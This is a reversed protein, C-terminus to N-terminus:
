KSSLDKIVEDLFEESSLNAIREDEYESQVREIYSGIKPSKKKMINLGEPGTLTQLGNTDDTLIIDESPIFDYNRMEDVLNAFHDKNDENEHIIAPVIIWAYPKMFESLDNPKIEGKELRERDIYDLRAARGFTQLFKAKGLTRLPLIGTFGSVDIGEALIDYHLVILRKSRNRGDNKLRKLFEQRTVHVGNINNGIYEDSAVAYIETGNLIMRKYEKSEFFRKIDNVGKVSVLVKPQIDKLIYSHQLFSEQIIVGISTEFDDMTYSTGNSLLIQFRPRVMKGKEIAERPTMLYIVEGYSNVNNMGRGQDSPTHITTATFFYCRDSKLVSLISYFREQILYHAEDNMVIDIKDYSTGIFKIKNKYFQIKNWKRMDDLYLDENEFNELIPEEFDEQVGDPIDVDILLRAREIQEASNYTSFLVLPLNLNKSKIIMERILSPSTGNEIESFPINDDTDQNSEIRIRELDEMDAQGGSHVCMYRSEIRSSILHSYVEKMLQYSLMIRPANIVYLRFENPHNKIDNAIITAQILTKGTGTPLCIIGKSKIDLINVCDEQYDYLKLLEM